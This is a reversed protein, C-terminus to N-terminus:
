IAGLQRLRNIADIRMERPADMNYATNMLQQPDIMNGQPNQLLGGMYLPMQGDAYNPMMENAPFSAAMKAMEMNTPQGLGAMRAMEAETLQAGTSAPNVMQGMRSMEASTPSSGLMKMIDQLTM